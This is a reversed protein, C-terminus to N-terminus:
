EPKYAKIAANVRDLVAQAMEATKVLSAHRELIFQDFAPRTVPNPCCQHTSGRHGYGDPM